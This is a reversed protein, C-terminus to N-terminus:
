VSKDEAFLDNETTQFPTLAAWLAHSAYQSNNSENFYTLRKKGSGDTNMMWWDTGGSGSKTNSMWVIKSGNPKYFGHENYDTQTM